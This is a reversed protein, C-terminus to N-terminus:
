MLTIQRIQSYGAFAVGFDVTGSSATINTNKITLMFSCKNFNFSVMLIGGETVETKSCTFKGNGAKLENTPITFTQTGLTVVLGESVRNAMDVDTDEVTFSGTVLLQDTNLKKNGPKVQCKDVILSNKVGMLLIIPIPKNKGNVITENVEATGIYDGVNIDFTLPCGLGSLNVNNAVSVFSHTKVDYNFSKKIGNETGSYSYKDNKLTKSNIPFTLVCPNVMDNSDVTVEIVTADNFNDATADIKGSISIKDSNDNSGAIITCKTVQISSSVSGGVIFQSFHTTKFRLAYLTPSIAITEVNTIGQQSLADALKNYWYAFAPNNSASFSYPITITVPQNFDTGGPGFEYPFTFLSVPLKPPNEVKSITINLECSYAGAPVVISVDNMGTINAPETGIIADSAPSVNQSALANSHVFTSGAYYIDTNQNRDDAWVLYPYGYRDVGIVPASQNSNTANNGVFINTQKGNNVDVFYLNTKGSKVINRMDQWCAFVRLGAGTSGTTIIVPTLQDAGSNDDVINRGALSTEPLGNSAAYYIDKNGATDDVWLLHLIAGTAETAIAPNTQNGSKTVIPVNTWPGNNSAAGYIDSLGNRSDAWVVYVTNASDVAIAPKIHDSSDSTIKSITETAFGDSSSAIYIEQNGTRDDQWAIYAKPPLSHDVAIVPNVANNDSDTVRTETSWNIGDVSTSMYIDWKKLRNDQWALYLKDSADIALAANCRDNSNDAERVSNGFNDAGAPLKGVYIERKMGSSSMVGAHWAVWINGASDRVTAPHGKSLNKSNSNAMKNEGFSRTETVFSYSYQSMVNGALDQANVVVSVTQDYDFPANPQYIFTYDANTGTRHCCGYPSNYDATDGMYVINDNVKITVSNADVGEGNDTVHLIILRDLPIHISDAAPSLGSVTPASTDISYVIITITESDQLLGDSAIFTVHYTGAQNPAPTWIFSQGAFTAGIPLGTASYTITNGDPDTANVGFALLKNTYVSKDGITSLVPARNVNNVTITITKSDQAKGDRAIFTVQYSGAQNYNPTWSFTQGVFTAGSPLNQASYTIPDGDADTASISFSLTSNENVSKNGIAALVPPQNTSGVVSVTITITESDQAKGDSAIFTVHYTGAQNYDPTWSFTQGTFTAGIPLGTASYTVTNGDPDTANVDFALLNNTYVSKDGIPVLVPPRNVNNVTITITNSDQAKGDSAIFTVQYSGAQNYDPTWSFTQGVFTAGSPLNQDSYSISDGDADTATVTFSLPSNEDVIKNGITGLVPAHNTGGSTTYEYCGADPAGVRSHGLIDTAPAYTSNGFNIAVSNPALNFDNNAANVFLSNINYNVLETGNVVFPYSPGGQGNPNTGFINNGHNIIRTYYSSYDKYLSLGSNTGGYNGPFINNYMNDIITSGFTTLAATASELQQSGGYITNNNFNVNGNLGLLLITGRVVNNEFTVNSMYGPRLISIKIASENNVYPANPNLRLITNGRIVVNTAYYDGSTINAGIMMCESRANINSTGTQTLIAGSVDGIISGALAPHPTNNGEFEQTSTIYAYIGQSSNSIFQGVAGSSAQRVTEGATFDKSRTGILEIQGHRNDADYVLNYSINSDCCDGIYMGRDSFWHVTTGTITTHDYHINGATNTSGVCIPITGGHINCDEVILNNGDFAYLDYTPYSYYPAYSGDLALPVCTVECNKLWLYSSNVFYVGNNIKFGDFKLFSSGQDNTTLTPWSTGGYKNIIYITNLEPIHGPMAKHTIWDTNHIVTYVNVDASNERFTGYNGNYYYVTDGANPNPDSTWQGSYYPYNGHALNGMNVDHVRALTKWPHGISGNADDNGNADDVYYTAASATSVAFACCYIATTILLCVL